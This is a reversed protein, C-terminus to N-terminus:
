GYEVQVSDLYISLENAYERIAEADHRRAATEIEAGYLSVPPLGYSAGEGKLNHGIRLVTEFDIQKGSLCSLIARVDSRKRELFTPILDSLESDVRAIFTKM